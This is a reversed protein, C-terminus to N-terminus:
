LEQWAQQTLSPDIGFREKLVVQAANDDLAPRANEQSKFIDGNKGADNFDHAGRLYMIPEPITVTPMRHWLRRHHYDLVCKPHGPRLFVTLACPWFRTTVPIWELKQRAVVSLGQAWDVAMRNGEFQFSRVLEKSREIYDVAVGDDDDLRFEAIYDAKPNRADRIAERSVNSVNLGEPASVIQVQPLGAILTELKAREPFQDGVLILFTFDPDTQARLGPLLIYEFFFMRQALRDPAYLARRRDEISDHKVKFASLESPYSFRCIGLAQVNM